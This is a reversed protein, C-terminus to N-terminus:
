YAIYVCSHGQDSFTLLAKWNSEVGVVEVAGDELRPADVQVVRGGVVDPWQHQLQGHRGRAGPDFEAGPPPEGVPEAADFQCVPEGGGSEWLDGSQEGPPKVRVRSGADEVVIQRRM